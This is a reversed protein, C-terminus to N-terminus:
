NCNQKRYKMYVLYNIGSRKSHKHKIRTLERYGLKEYLKLAGTNTDAVELVYQDYHPFSFIYNMIATAVGNGRYKSATAVFEVSAINNGTEIPPKEFEPKLFLGALTGKYLGLHKRLEKNNLYVSSVKGNTCATIGAMEGDILACYFADDVFTHELDKVLKEKDKSFFTLDKGFGDVFIESMKKKTNEELESARKIEIRM